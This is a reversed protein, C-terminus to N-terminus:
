LMDEPDQNKGAGTGFDMDEDIDENDSGAGDKMIMDAVDNQGEFQDDMDDADDEGFGAGDDQIKPKRFKFKSSM